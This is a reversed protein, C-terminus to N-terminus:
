CFFVGLYRCCDIRKIYGGFTSVLDACPAEFKPGFLICKSKAVNICMDIDILERKCATLIARLGSVTTAILLIDGAYLFVAAYLLCLLCCKRIQNQRSIPRYFHCFIVPVLCRRTERWCDFQFFNSVHGNWKVCTVSISFWSEFITLLQIPLKRDMLKTLLAYHNM